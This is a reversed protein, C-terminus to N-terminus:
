WFSISTANTTAGETQSPAIDTTAGAGAFHAARTVAVSAWFSGAGETGVLIKRTSVNTMFGTEVLIAPVNAWNFGTLDSRFLIGADTAHTARVIRERDLRELLARIAALELTRVVEARRAAM